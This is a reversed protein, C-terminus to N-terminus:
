CIALIKGQPGSHKLYHQHNGNRDIRNSFWRTENTECDTVPVANKPSFWNCTLMYASLFGGAQVTLNNKGVAYTKM